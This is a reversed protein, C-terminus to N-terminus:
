LHFYVFYFLNKFLELISLYQYDAIHHDVTVEGSFNGTDTGLRRDRDHIHLAAAITQATGGVHREVELREPGVGDEARDDAAVGLGLNEVVQHFVAVHGGVGDDRHIAAAGGDFVVDDAVVAVNHAHVVLTHMGFAIMM